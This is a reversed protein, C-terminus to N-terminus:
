AGVGGPPPKTDGQPAPAAAVAEKEGGGGKAAAAQAAKTAFDHKALAKSLAVQELAAAKVEAQFARIGDLTVLERLTAPVGATACRRLMRLINLFGELVQGAEPTGAVHQCNVRLRIDVEHGLLSKAFDQASLLQLVPVFFAHAAGEDWEEGDDGEYEAVNADLPNGPRDLLGCLRAYADDAESSMAAGSRASMDSGAIGLVNFMFGAAAEARAGEDQRAAMTTIRDLAGADLADRVDPEEWLSTPPARKAVRQRADLLAGNLHELASRRQFDGEAECAAVLLLGRPEAPLPMADGPANAARFNEFLEVRQRYERTGPTGGDKFNGLLLGFWALLEWHKSSSTGKKLCASALANAVDQPTPTEGNTADRVLAEVPAALDKPLLMNLKDVFLDADRAKAWGKRKSAAKAEARRAQRNSPQQPPANSDPANNNPKNLGLARTLDRVKLAVERNSGDGLSAAQQYAALADTRKDMAELVSGLRFHGKDWQPKLAIVTEADSHAKALKNLRLFCLCRNSHLPALVDPGSTQALKLGKTYEAAAKLYAGEAFAANGALKQADITAM